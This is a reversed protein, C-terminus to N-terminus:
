PLLRLLRPAELEGFIVPFLFLAVCFNICNQAGYLLVICFSRSLDYAISSILYAQNDVHHAKGVNPDRFVRQSDALGLQTLKASALPDCLLYIPIVQVPHYVTERFITIRSDLSLSYEM